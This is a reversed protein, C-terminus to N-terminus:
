KKKQTEKPKPKSPPKPKNAENVIMRMTPKGSPPRNSQKDKDDAM